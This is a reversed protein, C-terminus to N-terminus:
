KYYGGFSDTAMAISHRHARRETQSAWRSDLMENAAAEFDNIMLASWMGYFMLCGRTGMQYCMSIIIAKRTKSLMDYVGGTGGVHSQMLKQEIIKVDRQLWELAQSKSVTIPFNMPHQGSQKHLKTGYGITVYGESCLYPVKSFGEEAKLIKAIKM